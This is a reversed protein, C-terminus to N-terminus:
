MASSFSYYFSFCLQLLSRHKTKKHINPNFAGVGNSLYYKQLNSNYGYLFFWVEGM